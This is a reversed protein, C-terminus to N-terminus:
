LTKPLSLLNDLYVEYCVCIYYRPDICWFIPIKLGHCFHRGINDNNNYVEGRERTSREEDGYIYSVRCAIAFPMAYHYTSTSIIALVCYIYAYYCYIQNRGSKMDYLINHLPKQVHQIYINM